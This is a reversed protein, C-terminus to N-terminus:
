TCLKLSYSDSYIVTYTSAPGPSGYWIDLGAGSNMVPLTWAHLGSWTGGSYFSCGINEGGSVDYIFFVDNNGCSGIGKCLASGPPSLVTVPATTWTNGNDTSRWYWLANGGSGQQAFARVEGSAANYSVACGGDQFMNNVASGFTTWTSWQAAVSPDTIRQYQFSQQFTSGGRTLRVRIISGDAAVCADNWADATNPTQYSSYHLIHDEATLQIGPRRTLANLATTLPSSLTRVM